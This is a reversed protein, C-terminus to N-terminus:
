LSSCPFGILFSDMQNDMPVAHAM